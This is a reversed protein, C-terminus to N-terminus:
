HKCLAAFDQDARQMKLRAKAQDAPGALDFADHANRARHALKTCSQANRAIDSDRKRALALARLDQQRERERDRDIQSLNAQDRRLREAAAARDAPDVPVESAVTSQTGAACPKDSYSVRGDIECRYNTAQANVAFVCTAV